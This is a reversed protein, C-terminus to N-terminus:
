WTSSCSRCSCSSVRMPQLAGTSAAGLDIRGEMYPQIADTNVQELVPLMAFLTLFLSLSILVSNPPTEQLGIAHRLMSLVIVIRVFATMCMLIAPALSLVTLALLVRVANSVEQQQSAGGLKVSVGPLTVLDGTAAWAGGAIAIGVAVAACRRLVGTRTGM